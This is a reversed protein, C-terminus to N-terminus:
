SEQVQNSIKEIYPSITEMANEKAWAAAAEFKPILQSEQWWAQEQLSAVSSLAVLLTVVLAGKAFGVVGGFFLDVGGLGISQIAKVLIFSVLGGIILVSFFILGAAIGLLMVPSLGEFPLMAAVPQFYLAAAAIAAVWTILSLVERIFGRMFGVITTLIILVVIGLDLIDANIEIM